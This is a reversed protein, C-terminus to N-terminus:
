LKEFQETLCLLSISALLVWCGRTFSEPSAHPRCNFLPEAKALHIVHSIHQKVAIHSCRHKSCVTLCLPVLSYEHCAECRCSAPFQELWCGRQPSALDCGLHRQQLEIYMPSLYEAVITFSWGHMNQCMHKSQSRGGLSPHHVLVHVAPAGHAFLSSSAPVWRHVHMHRCM